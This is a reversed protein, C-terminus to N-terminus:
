RNVKKCKSLIERHHTFDTRQFADLAVNEMDGSPSHRNGFNDARKLEGSPLHRISDGLLLRNQEFIGVWEEFFARMYKINSASYGRLGPLEVQLLKSIEEIAGTGWKGLRTNVSVYNGIDYYLRLQEGNALNAAKYRSQLIANKIATVAEKYKLFDSM